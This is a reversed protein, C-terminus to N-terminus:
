SKFILGETLDYFYSKNNNKKTDSSLENRNIPGISGMEQSNSCMPDFALNQKLDIEKDSDKNKENGMILYVGLQGKETSFYLQQKNELCEFLNQFNDLNNESVKNKNSNFIQKRREDELLDIKVDEPTTIAAVLMGESDKNTLEKIDNYTLFCYDRFDNSNLIQSTCVTIETVM